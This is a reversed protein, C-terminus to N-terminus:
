PSVGSDAQRWLLRLEARSAEAEVLHGSAAQSRMLGEVALPRRPTRALAATFEMRAEDARGMALLLEGLLEHPPKITMPPGFPMPLSDDLAAAQRVTSIAAASDGSLAQVMGSLELGLIRGYPRLGGDIQGTATELRALATSATGKDGRKAAVYGTGFALYAEVGPGGGNVTPEEVFRGSWARSDILYAARMGAVGEVPDGRSRAESSWCEDVLRAADSMRGQQQYGYSLWENYHGCTGPPLGRRARQENVVRMAHENAQVADDWMGLALFIHSTMHLAHPADPAMPGYARAATLGLPAHVPDDFAHIVYHAAGPHDPHRAFVDQAIAGAWMYTPINREGQSLGLLSLSYFLQAEDDDPYATAVQKMAASYATDRAAKAGEGYLIEVAGLYAQERPTPARARRAEPTPGLRALSARASDLNQEDWVPHTWTMAEGWYALAFGPDAQEAERFAKLASPYEFSHLYLVGRIFPAQAGAAGSNPFTLSGLQQGLLPAPLGLLALLLTRRATFRERGTL